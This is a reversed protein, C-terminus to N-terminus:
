LLQFLVKRGRLPKELVHQAYEVLFRLWRRREGPALALELGEAGGGRERLAALAEPSIAAYDGGPARNRCARCVLGGLRRSLGAPQRPDPPAGCAACRRLELGFGLHALMDLLALKAARGILIDKDARDFPLPPALGARAPAEGLDSLVRLAGALAAFLGPQPEGPLTAEAALEALLGAAAFAPPSFRLGAHEDLFAAETLLDLGAQPRELVLVDERQYLDLHGFLPSKERRCGKALVDLRGSGKGLLTAVLSSESFRRTRLVIAETKITAM